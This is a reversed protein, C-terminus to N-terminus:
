KSQPHKVESRGDNFGDIFGRKVDDYNLLFGVVLAVIILKGWHKIVLNQIDKVFEIM